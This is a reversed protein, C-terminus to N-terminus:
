SWRIVGAEPDASNNIAVTKLIKDALTQKKADWLPFLWGVLCILSDIIHAFQRAIGPGVGIVDGTEESVVKIKAIAKGPTVGYKGVLLGLYVYLGVNLLFSVAGSLTTSFNALVQTIISFVIGPVIYDIVGGLARAPWEALGGAAGGTPAPPYSGMSPAPPPPYAGPPAAYPDSAPPPTFDSAPPPTYGGPEGPQPTTPYQDSM